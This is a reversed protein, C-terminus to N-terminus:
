RVIELAADAWDTVAMAMRRLPRPPPQQAFTVPQPGGRAAWEVAVLKLRTEVLIEALLAAAIVVVAGRVIDRLM